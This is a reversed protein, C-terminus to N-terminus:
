FNTIRREYSVHFVGFTLHAGNLDNKKHGVISFGAAFFYNAMTMLTLLLLLLRM